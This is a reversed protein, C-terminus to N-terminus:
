IKKKYQKLEIELEKMKINLESKRKELYRVKNQLVKIKYKADLYKAKWKDRSREFFTVLKKIPSKYIKDNNKQTGNLM